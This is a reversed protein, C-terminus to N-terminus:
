LYKGYIILDDDPKYYGVILALQEFGKKIYFARTSAYKPTSSTEAILLRANKKKLYEETFQLLQTGIGKNHVDPSTAIWYMDYTGQTAPTPGICVYGLVKEREDVYSFIEYDQQEFDNLYIDLLEQAIAIEEDNFVNTQRVIEIIQKADEKRTPRIM